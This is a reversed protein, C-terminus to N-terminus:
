TETYREAEVSMCLNIKDSILPSMANMGFESRLITTSAKVLITNSGGLEDGVNSIDIYFAVDKTVGRLTLKGNLVAKNASIWHFGSSIFILKPHHESDLFDDGKLMSEIFVINTNLSSVDVSIMTQSKIGNLAIGGQFNKFDGKVLGVASQVCFSMKSSDKKIRFLQDFEAAKLM